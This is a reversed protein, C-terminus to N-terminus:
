FFFFRTRTLDPWFIIVRIAMDLEIYLFWSNVSQLIIQLCVSPHFLNKSSLTTLYCGLRLLIFHYYWMLTTSTFFPIRSAFSHIWILHLVRPLASSAITIWPQSQFNFFCSEIEVMLYFINFSTLFNFNFFLFHLFIQSLFHTFQM